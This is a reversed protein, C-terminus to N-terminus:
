APKKDPCRNAISVYPPGGAVGGGGSATRTGRYMEHKSMKAGRWTASCNNGCEAIKERGDDLCRM